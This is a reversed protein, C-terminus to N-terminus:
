NIRQSFPLDFWKPFSVFWSNLNESYNVVSEQDSFKHAMRYCELETGLFVVDQGLPYVDAQMKYEKTLKKMLDFRSIKMNQPKKITPRM